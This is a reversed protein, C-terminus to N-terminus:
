NERYEADWPYLIRRTGDQNMLLKPLVPHVPRATLKEMAEKPSTFEALMELNILTPEMLHISGNRAREIADAPHLWEHGVIERNDPVIEHVEEMAKFFFHTSFRKPLGEPTTWHAFYVLDDTSLVFGASNLWEYYDLGGQRIEERSKLLHERNMKGANAQAGSRPKALLVLSEEFTERIAAAYLGLAEEPSSLGPIQQSAQHATRKPSLEAVLPAHDQSELMGGPFVFAGAGFDSRRTREVLLVEPGATESQGERMLVLTAAPKAIVPM